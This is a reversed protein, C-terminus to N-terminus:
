DWFMHNTELLPVLKGVYRLGPTKGDKRQTHIFVCTHHTHLVHILHIWIAGLLFFFWVFIYRLNKIYIV